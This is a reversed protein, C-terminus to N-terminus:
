HRIDMLRFCAIRAIFAPQCLFMFPTAPFCICRFLPNSPYDPIIVRFRVSASHMCFPNLHVDSWVEETVYRWYPRTQHVPRDKPQNGGLIVTFALWNEIRIPPWFATKVEFVDLQSLPSAREWDTAAPSVECSCDLRERTAGIVRM